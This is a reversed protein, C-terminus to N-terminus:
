GHTDQWIGHSHFHGCKVQPRRQESGHSRGGQWIRQPRLSEQPWRTLLSPLRLFQSGEGAASVHELAFQVALQTVFFLPHLGIKCQVWVTALWKQDEAGGV